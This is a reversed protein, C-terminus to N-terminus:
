DMHTSLWKPSLRSNPHRWGHMTEATERGYVDHWFQEQQPDGAVSSDKGIIRTTWFDKVENVIEQPTLEEIHIRHEAFAATSTWPNDLYEALTLEEGTSLWQLRKPVTWCDAFSWASMLPIFDLMLIPRQYIHALWDPGTGTSICATCNAFLWIDLLASRGPDFAYDIIRPNDSVMPKAMRTGMRLVTVGISALWEAAQLFNSVDCDRYSHYSWSGSEKSRIHSQGALYEADRVMLCVFPDGQRWGKEMLWERGHLEEPMTFAFRSNTRAFLGEVDRSGTRTSPRIHASGGPILRNWYDVYRAWWRVYLTRRVMRDWQDNSPSDLWYIELGSSSETVRRALQEAADPIFHGIRSSTLTGLRVLLWPRIARVLLVSPIAWVANIITLLIQYRRIRDLNM